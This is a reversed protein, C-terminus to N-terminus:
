ILKFVKGPLCRLLGEFELNLLTASVKSMPMKAKLAILDISVEKEERIIQILTEEDPTLEIFLKKQILVDKKPQDWGMLYRIDSASEVLAARNTRILFNTGRSYKDDPRGPIAFVDRNYSNAIDATILSGGKTASEIVLAADALGAIIRNRKPFNPADPNTGSMFDTLLGGQNLMRKALERNIGPYIRDLGHALVGVTKLGYALSSKHAQTDVGYALGSVILVDEEKFESIIRDCIAKGHDTMKRTGVVAIIKSQNLNANGKFYLMVPGDMAQKLRNPFKEDTFFLAQIKNKELFNVEAEARKLITQSVIAEALKSGIGNIKLLHSKKSRFVAEVGGCYAILKKANVDGVGPLLTIGIEYVLHEPANQSM